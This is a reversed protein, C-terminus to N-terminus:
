RFRAWPESIAELIKLSSPDLEYGNGESSGLATKKSFSEAKRLQEILLKMRGEYALQQKETRIKAM